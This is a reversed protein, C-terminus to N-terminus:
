STTLSHPKRTKLLHPTKHREMNGYQIKPIYTQIYIYVNMEFQFKLQFTLM